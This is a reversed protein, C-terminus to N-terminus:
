NDAIFNFVLARCKAQLCIHIRVLHGGINCNIVFFILFDEILGCVGPIQMCNKVSEQIVVITM